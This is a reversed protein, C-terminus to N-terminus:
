RCRHLLEEHARFLLTYQHQLAATDVHSNEYSLAANQWQKGLTGVEELESKYWDIAGQLMRRDQESNQFLANKHTLESSLESFRLHLNKYQNLEYCRM